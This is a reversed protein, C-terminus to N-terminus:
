VCKGQEGFQIVAHQRSISDNKVLIDCIMDDRGPARLSYYQVAICLVIRCHPTGVLHFAKVGLDFTKRVIGHVIMDLTCSHKPVTSWSPPAYRLKVADALALLVRQWSRWDGLRCCSTPVSNVANMCAGSMKVYVGRARRHSVVARRRELLLELLLRTHAKQEAQQQQQQFPRLKVVSTAATTTTTATASQLHRPQWPKYLPRQPSAVLVM